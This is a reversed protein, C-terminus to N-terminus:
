PTSLALRQPGTKRIPQSPLDATVSGWIKRRRIMSVLSPSIAHDAAIQKNTRPDQFIQCVQQPSIKSMPNLEGFLAVGRGKQAMDKSNDQPTGLFLHHPNCCSPNDCKHCVFLEDDIGNNHLAYAVRHARLLVGPMPTYFGYGRAAKAGLWNWCDSEDRVDVRSWFDDVSRVSEILSLSSSAARYKAQQERAKARVTVANKEKYKRASQRTQEINEKVYAKRRAIKEFDSVRPEKKKCGCSVVQGSRIHKGLIAKEVGCECACVWVARGNVAESARLVTLRGVKMGTMDFTKM